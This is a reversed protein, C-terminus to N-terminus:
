FIGEWYLTDFYADDVALELSVDSNYNDKITDTCVLKIGHKVKLMHLARKMVKSKYEDYTM